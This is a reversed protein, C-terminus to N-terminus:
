NKALYQDMNAPTVLEFPVWVISEVSEGKAMSALALRVYPAAGKIDAQSSSPRNDIGGMYTLVGAKDIIFMHPTVRADFQRGLRGDPDLLVATPAAGRSTTLEDAQRATVHGQEGPASSM